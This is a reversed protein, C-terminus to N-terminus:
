VKLSIIIAPIIVFFLIMHYLNVIPIKLLSSDIGNRAIYVSFILFILIGLVLILIWANFGRGWLKFLVFSAIILISIVNIAFLYLSPTSPNMANYLGDKTMLGHIGMGLSLIDNYWILLFLLMLLLITIQNEKLGFFEKGQFGYIASLLILVFVSVVLVLNYYTM